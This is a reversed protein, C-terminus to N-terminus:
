SKELKGPQEFWDQAIKEGCDKNIAKAFNIYDQLFRVYNERSKEYNERDQETLKDRYLNRIQQFPQLVLQSNYMRLISEFQKILLQFDGRLVNKMGEKFVALLSALDYILSRPYNFQPPINRLNIFVYPINDIHNDKLLEGLRDSLLNFDDYYKKVLFRHKIATAAKKLLILLSQGFVVYISLVTIIVLLLVMIYQIVPPLNSFTAIITAVLGALPGIMSTIHAIREDKLKDNNTM